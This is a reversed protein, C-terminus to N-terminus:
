KDVGSPHFASFLWFIRKEENKKGFFSLPTNLVRVFIQSPTSQSFLQRSFATLQKKLVNWRQHKVPGQILRQIPLFLKQCKHHDLKGHFFYFLTKAMNHKETSRLNVQDVSNFFSLLCALLFYKQIKKQKFDEQRFSTCWSSCGNSLM